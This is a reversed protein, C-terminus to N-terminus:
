TTSPSRAWGGFREYKFDFELTHKGPALVDPGEWKIRKSTSYTELPFVPKGDLLYFGYGAFGDRRFNLDHGRCRRRSGHHGSTITYSADLIM